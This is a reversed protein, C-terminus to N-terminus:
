NLKQNPKSGEAQWKITLPHKSCRPAIHNAPHNIKHPTTLQWSASRGVIHCINSMGNRVLPTVINSTMETAKNKKAQTNSESNWRSPICQDSNCYWNSDMIPDHLTCICSGPHKKSNSFLQFNFPPHSPLQLHLTPKFVKNIGPCHIFYYLNHHRSGTNRFAAFSCLVLVHGSCWEEWVLAMRSTAVERFLGRFPQLDRGRRPVDLCSM